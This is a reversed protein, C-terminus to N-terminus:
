MKEYGVRLRAYVKHLSIYLFISDLVPGCRPSRRGQPVNWYNAGTGTLRIGFTTTRALPPLQLAM